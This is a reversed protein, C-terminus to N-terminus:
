TMERREVSVDMRELCFKNGDAVVKDLSDRVDKIRHAIRLRYLPPLVFGGDIEHKFFRLEKVCIM